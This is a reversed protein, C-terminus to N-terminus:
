VHARGIQADGFNEVIIGDVGGAALRAADQIARERISERDGDFRPAGPLPGLHVMGIIPQDTAFLDNM